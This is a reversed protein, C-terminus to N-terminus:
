GAAARTKTSSKAARRPVPSSVRGSAKASLRTSTTGTLFHDANVTPMEFATVQQQSRMTAPARARTQQRRRRPNIQGGAPDHQRREDIERLQPRGAELSVRAGEDPHEGPVVVGHEIADRRQEFGVLQKRQGVGEGIALVQEADAQERQRDVGRRAVRNEGVVDGPQEGVQQGRGRHVQEGPPTGAIVQRGDGSRQGEGEAEKAHVVTM